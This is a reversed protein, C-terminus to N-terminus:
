KARAAFSRSWTWARSRFMSGRNARTSSCCSTAKKSAKRSRECASFNASATTTHVVYDGPKLDAIDAAFAALQAKTLSPRAILDSTDFLDESGFLVLQADPFTAGKRIAGKILYTSAVPGGHSARHANYPATWTWRSRFRCRISRFFTPSGSWNESPPDLSAVRNGQEVLSRAEAVAVQMSGHFSMSARTPIHLSERSFTGLELERLQLEMRNAIHAQFEGWRFFNAEASVPGPRDPDELRKWLAGGRRTTQEPEDIVIIPDTVFSLLSHARPKVMPVVFEWGPFADGPSAVGDFDIKAALEHFLPRSRPYEVLPLVTAENVKLVSRQTEVDFRRISEIEDGFFEVRVPRNSEAPFVDLIGGRVSYEGVM